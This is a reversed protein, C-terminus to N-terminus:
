APGTGPLAAPPEPPASPPAALDQLGVARILEIRSRLQLKTLISSVHTQVTNRSVYLEASIDPNSKGLAVLRAIRTETPTLAAWGTKERRHVSRSGRRIGYPRLRADARRIDWSAGFEAYAEVADTFAKRALAIDGAAALRVAAEEYAFAAEEAWQMRHSEEAITLLDMGDDALLAQCTRSCLVLGPSVMPANEVSVAAAAASATTNDGIALAARILAFSEHHRMYRLGPPLDLWSRMISYALEHDGEGEALMALAPTVYAGSGLKPPATFDEVGSARIHVIALERDERHLAILAVLGFLHNLAPSGLFEPEISAFHVLAEDWHGMGFAIETAMALVTAHRYTGLREALVGAKRVTELAEQTRGTYILPAARNVTMALRLDVSDPDNGVGALIEDYYTLQTEADSVFLLACLAFAIGLPDHHRRALDLAGEALARGREAQGIRILLHGAWGDCRAQWIEPVQANGLLPELAGLGEELRNTRLASHAWHIRSRAALTLDAFRPLASTAVDHLQQDRGMWFLVQILRSALKEWDPDGDPLLPLARTLLDASVQPAAFLMAESTDALWHLAWQDLGDSVALLHRAVADVGAGVEALARAIQSHLASRMAAPTQEILAQRILDHRFRMGHGTDVLVGADVAEAIADAIGTAQRSAAAALEQGDFEKGLLAAQRLIPVAQASLFSLRRGIATLLSSSATASVVNLEAIDGSKALMGDATLAHVLERVYLPNGGARALEHVLNPGPRATTLLAAMEAVEDPTLPGLDVILGHHAEV